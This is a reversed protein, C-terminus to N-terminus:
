YNVNLLRSVYPDVYQYISWGKLFPPFQPLVGIIYTLVNTPTSTIPIGDLTISGENLKVLGLVALLLTSKGSCNFCLM